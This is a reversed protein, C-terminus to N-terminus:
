SHCETQPHQAKREAHKGDSRENNRNFWENKTTRWGSRLVKTRCKWNEAWNIWSGRRSVGTRDAESSGGFQM